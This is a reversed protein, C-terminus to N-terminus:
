RDGELGRGPLAQVRPVALLPQGAGAAVFIARVFGAPMPPGKSLLRCPWDLGLVLSNGGGQSTALPFHYKRVTLPAVSWHGKHSRTAPHAHPLSREPSPALLSRPM